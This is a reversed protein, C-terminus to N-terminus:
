NIIELLKELQTDRKGMIQDLDREIVIDPQTGNGDLTKGNRQFSLMTSLKVRINSHKLYFKKSRGSSGNTTDGVIKVNNLGKFATTFISAASFCRENVLIYVKCKLASKGSRLIMYYPSSFKNIDFETDPKFWKNYEGISKREEKSIHESHYNFLYRGRMSSIDEDINQDSRICAVNAVWPSQSPQVIYGAFLNLIDRTGGGNERIDIILAGADRINNLGSILSDRYAPYEEFSLMSPINIYMIDNPYQNFMNSYDKKYALKISEDIYSIAAKDKWKKKKTSLPLTINKYRKGNTLVIDVEKKNYMEQRLFLRGIDRIDKSVSRLRSNVPSLKRRSCYKDIFEDMNYGDISKIYPYKKNYHTYKYKGTERLALLKGDFPAVAIPFHMDNLKHRVRKGRISAHRDIIESQINELINALFSVSVSDKTSLLVKKEEIKDKIRKKDSIQYYSSEKKLLKYYQELDALAQKSSINQSIIALNNLVIIAVIIFLNKM